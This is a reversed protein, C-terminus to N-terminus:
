FPLSELDGDDAGQQPQRNVTAPARMQQGDDQQRPSMFEVDGAILELGARVQGANDTWPRAEMRGSVYVKTGKHLYQSLTEARAGFVTCRVWETKDEWENAQNKGRYNCAVNFRLRGRGDPTFQMEPESGINGILNATLM